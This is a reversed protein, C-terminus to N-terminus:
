MQLMQTPQLQQNFYQVPSLYQLSTHPRLSNYWTNWEQHLRDFETYNGQILLYLNYELCEAQVTHNYKEIFANMKPSRPYNWWQTIREQELKATFHKHNEQGNDTQIFKINITKPDQRTYTALKVKFKDLFDTTAKSNLTEYRESHSIRSTTDIGCIFYIKKTTTIGTAPNMVQTQITLADLQIREGVQTSKYEKPVRKKKKGYLLSKDRPNRCKVMGAGGHLYVLKQKNWDKANRPIARQTKLSSIIRGITSPSIPPLGFLNMDRSNGSYELSLEVAYVIDSRATHIMKALKEKGIGFRKKRVLKIFQIYFSPYSSSRFIKPKTSKPNLAMYESVYGNTKEVESLSKRWRTITCRNINKGNLELAEITSKVGHKKAYNLIKIRDEYNYSMVTISKVEVGAL